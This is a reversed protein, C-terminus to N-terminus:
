RGTGWRLLCAGWTMGAGVAALLVTDGDRLRGNAAAAGLTVPVSAAGTNGYVDGTYLTKEPGVGISALVTQILQVNAQHTVVLDVDALTLEAQALLEKVMTPVIDAFFEAVKRGQMTGVYPDRAGPGPTVIAYDTKTGDAGLVIEGIGYPQRVPALVAAGAGDAFIAATVRDSYNVHPTYRDAGVILAYGSSRGSQLLGLAVHLAYLFGTCAANLDLAMAQAAGLQGQVGCAISPGFRGPTCTAVIIVSVDAPDVGANALARRGAESAMHTLTEEQRTTARSLIGTRRMIWEPDMGIRQALEVNDVRGEPVYSGLGIIGFPSELHSRTTSNM